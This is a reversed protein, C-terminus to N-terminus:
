DQFVIQTGFPIKSKKIYESNYSSNKFIIKKINIPLNTMPKNLTYIVLEDIELLLNIQNNNYILFTLSHLINLTDNNLNQNFNGGFHLNQLSDPFKVNDLSQNFGNGFQLTQLSDPFKVNDLSQNFM